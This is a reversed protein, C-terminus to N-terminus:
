KNRTKAEKQLINKVELRSPLLCSQLNEHLMQQTDFPRSIRKTRIHITSFPKPIVFRDWTKLEWSQHCSVKCFWLPKQLHSALYSAGRHAIAYPGRPGDIAILTFQQPNQLMKRRLERLASLGQRSSSGRVAEIGFSKMIHFQLEGDKSLSIPTICPALPLHVLLPLQEGHLFAIVGGGELRDGEQSITLTKLLIQVVRSIFWALILLKFTNLQQALYNLIKM